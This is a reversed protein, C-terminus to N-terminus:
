ITNLLTDMMQKITSIIHASASYSNQFMTLNALQEDLNVGTENALQTKYYNTQTTATESTSKISSAIQQFNTLIATALNAYTASTVSLGSTSYNATGDFTAAIAATSMEPMSAAGSLLTSNVAFTSLDPIGSNTTVTFFSSALTQGNQTGTTATSTTVAASYATAFASSAGTFATVLTQLQSKLKTIVGVGAVTSAADAASTSMFKVSAEISGGNLSATVDNGNQDTIGNLASSYSFKYNNSEDVLPQGSTTYLAVQGNARNQVSVNTYKAVDLISKDLEDQLNATSQGATTAVQLKRNISAVTALASNLGAVDNTADTTVQASLASIGTALSNIEKALTNGANIVALKQTSSEPNSSYESWASAFKAIDDSLAPPDSTADLISQVQTMYDNLTGSYSSETTSTQYNDTLAQSVARTYGSYAVGGPNTGYELSTVTSTKTTYGPTQANSINNSTLSIMSMSANLGSLAISMASTLSSSM